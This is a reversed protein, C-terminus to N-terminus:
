PMVADAPEEAPSPAPAIDTKRRRRSAKAGASEAAPPATIRTGGLRVRVLARQLDLWGVLQTREDAVFPPRERPITM